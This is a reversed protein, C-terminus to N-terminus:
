NHGSIVYYLKIWEEISITEARRRMDIDTEVLVEAADKTSISLGNALSNRLQKRPTSFGARVIRFFGSVHREELLPSQHVRIQVIASTVKPRPYFATPQVTRVIRPHGYFQTAISLLSMDNPQATMQQAVEKQVTVVAVAPKCPSELFHRLIHSAAYYPLNGILKYTCYTNTLKCVDVTRADDAVVNINPFENMKLTSVLEKDVEIAIVQSARQALERTLTGLGPGIEVIIDSQSVDSADILAHLVKRDTLFYQGLTKKPRLGLERLVHRVNTLLLQSPLNM